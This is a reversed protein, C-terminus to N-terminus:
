ALTAVIARHRYALRGGRRMRVGVCFATGAVRGVTKETGEGVVGSRRYDAVSAIGAMPHGCGSRDVAMRDREDIASCTMADRGETEITDEIVADIWRHLRTLRTMVIDVTDISGALCRCHGRVQCRGLVASRAMVGRVESVGEDIVAADDVVAGRTM